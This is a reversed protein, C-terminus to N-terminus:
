RRVVSPFRWHTTPSGLFVWRKLTPHHRCCGPSRVPSKGAILRANSPFPSRSTAATTAIARRSSSRQLGRRRRFSGRLRTVPARQSLRALPSTIKEARLPNDINSGEPAIVDVERQDSREARGIVPGPDLVGVPDTGELVKMPPSPMATAGFPRDVHVRVRTIGKVETQSLGQLESQPSWLGERSTMATWNPGLHRSWRGVHGSM